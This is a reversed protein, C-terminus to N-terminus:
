TSISLYSYYYKKTYYYKSNSLDFNNNNYYQRRDIKINLRGVRSSIKIERM